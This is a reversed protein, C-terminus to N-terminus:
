FFSALSGFVRAGDVVKFAANKVGRVAETPARKIANTWGTALLKKRGSSRRPKGHEPVNTRGIRGSRDRPERFAAAGNLANANQRTRRNRRTRAQRNGCLPSQAPIRGWKNVAVLEGEKPAQRLRADAKGELRANEYQRRNEREVSAKGAADVRALTFGEAQLGAAVSVGGRDAAEQIRSIKEEAKQVPRGHWPETPQVKSAETIQAARAEGMSPLDRDKLAAAFKLIDIREAGTSNENLRYTWGRDTIVVIEGDRYRPARNGLEGLLPPLANV